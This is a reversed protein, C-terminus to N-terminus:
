KYYDKINRQVETADPIVEKKTRIKNIQIREKKIKILRTLHKNIKNIKGFFWSKTDQIKVRAKRTWLENKKGQNKNIGEKQKIESYSVKQYRTKELHISLTIIQSRKEKKIHTEKTM